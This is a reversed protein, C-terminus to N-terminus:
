KTLNSNFPKFTAITNSGSKLQGLTLTKESEKVHLTQILSIVASNSDFTYGEFIKPTECTELNQIAFKASIKLKLKEVFNTENKMKLLRDSLKKIEINFNNDDM